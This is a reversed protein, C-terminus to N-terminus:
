IVKAVDVYTRRWMYMMDKPRDRPILVRDKVAQKMSQRRRVYVGGNAAELTAPMVCGPPVHEGERREGEREM